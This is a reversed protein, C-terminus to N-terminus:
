NTGTTAGTNAGAGADTSTSATTNPAAPLGLKERLDDAKQRLQPLMSRIMGSQSGEYRKILDEAAKLAAAYDGKAEFRKVAVQDIRAQLEPAEGVQAKFRTLIAVSKDFEGILEYADAALLHPDYARSYVDNELLTKDSTIRECAAVAMRAFREVQRKNEKGTRDYLMAMQYLYPYGLPFQKPSIHADLSDLVQAAKAPNKGETVLWQAYTFYMFRFNDISPRRNTFDFYVDPNNMNRFKLGWHQETFYTEGPIINLITRDMAAPNVAEVGRASSQPVPCVRYALGEMRFYPRLGCWADSGVSGAYYVPREFKTQELIDRVLKDQVRYMYRPNNDEDNGFSMGVFPIRVATTASASTDSVVEVADAVSSTASQQFQRLTANRVPIVLTTASGTSLDLAEQSYEDSTQISRDSFSLPVKEAGWPSENKLQNVYWLTNGLSLNVVRVDRRVGLGDQLYWLAFTDNDGNTFLIANKELSQLINYAYDFPMYNGSRDHIKWGGVAMNVPVLVLALALVAGAVASKINKIDARQLNEIVGYVGIGIWACFVMFSGVYFYDRERPQPNQQNQQIAALVGMTLFMAMFVLWMRRDKGFHFFMGFLGFLLPLAFFRVPFLHAYGNETNMQDAEERGFLATPADQEDSARGVFNWLFYRIYM